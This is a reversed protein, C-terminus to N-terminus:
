TLDRLGERRGHRLGGTLLRVSLRLLITVAVTAPQACVALFYSLSTRIHRDRAQLGAVGFDGRSLRKRSFTIVHRLASDTDPRRRNDADGRRDRCRIGLFTM